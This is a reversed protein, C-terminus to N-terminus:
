GPHGVPRGPRVVRQDYEVPQSTDCQKVSDPEPRTSDRLWCENFVSCYCTRTRVDWRAADFARWMNVPADKSLSLFDVSGRAPLVSHLIPVSSIPVWKAGQACCAVMLSLANKMPKGNYFLEFTKIRAPGIGPNTLTLAINRGAVDNNSTEFEVIPWSNAQVLRGMSRSNEIGLAISVTSLLLALGGLILDARLRRGGFHHHVESPEIM